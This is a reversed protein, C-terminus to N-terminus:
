HMPERRAMAMHQGKFLLFLCIIHCELAGALLILQTGFAGPFRMVAILASQFEALPSRKLHLMVPTTIAHLCSLMGDM